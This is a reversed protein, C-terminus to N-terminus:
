NSSDSEQAKKKALTKALSNRIKEKTEESVRKGINIQRLKEKTEKSHPKGEKFVPGNEKRRAWAEKGKQSLKEKTDASVQKGQNVQRLKEKTQSSLTSGTKSASLKAKSEASWKLGKTPSVRGKLAKSRKKNSEASRVTTSSVISTWIRISEFVRSNVKVKNRTQSLLKLALVMKKWEPTGFIVMKTLLLHCVYHERLTLKVLNSKCNTGGLSKPIVHHKETMGTYIEKKAANSVISNYWRTYKNDIFIM